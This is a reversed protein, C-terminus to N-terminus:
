RDRLQYHNSSLHNPYIDLGGKNNSPKKSLDKVPFITALSYSKYQGHHSVEMEVAFIAKTHIAHNAYIENM